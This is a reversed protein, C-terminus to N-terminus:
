RPRLTLRRRRSEFSVSAFLHLPLLGDGENADGTPRGVLAAVLNRLSMTGVRLERVLAIEAGTRGSLDSAGLRSPLPETPLAAHGKREFVVLTNTGSDPVLRITRRGDDDQPLEVLFRGASPSLVLHVAKGAPGAGLGGDWVLRRKRYDLTYDHRSLFDQGLVGAIGKRFARARAAPIVTALLGDASAAGLTLRGLRVVTRTEEGTTTIVRTRGVVPLGVGGTVGDVIATGTAGTDLLFRHPGMGDLFVPVMIAGSKDLTFPVSSCPLAGRGCPLVSLAFTLVVAGTAM